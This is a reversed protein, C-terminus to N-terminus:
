VPEGEDLLLLEGGNLAYDCPDGKTLSVKVVIRKADNWIKPNEEM